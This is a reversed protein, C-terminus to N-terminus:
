SEEEQQEQDDMLKPLERVPMKGGNLERLERRMEADGALTYPYRAADAHNSLHNM